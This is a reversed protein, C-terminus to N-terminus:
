LFRYGVHIAPFITLPNAKFTESAVVLDRASLTYGVGLWPTAYFGAPLMFRYGANVGVGFQTDSASEGTENFRARLRMVGADVGVFAGRQAAFLFYQLKAGAGYFSADFGENGHAFAPLDMAYGGLDLRARKWGLGLHLSYGSLIFATPDTEADLHARREATSQAVDADARATSALLSPAAVLVLLVTRIVNM